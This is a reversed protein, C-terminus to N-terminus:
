RGGESAKHIEESILDYHVLNQALESFNSVAERLSVLDAENSIPSGARRDAIAIDLATHIIAAATELLARAADPGKFLRGVLHELLVFADDAHRIPWGDLLRDIEDVGLLLHDHCQKQAAYTDHAMAVRGIRVMMAQQNVSQDRYRPDLVLPRYSTV